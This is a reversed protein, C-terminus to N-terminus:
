TFSSTTGGTAVCHWAVYNGGGSGFPNLDNFYLRPYSGSTGDAVTIGDANFSTIEGHSKTDETANTNSTLM